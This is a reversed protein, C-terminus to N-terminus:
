AKREAVGYRPCAVDHRPSVSNRPIGVGCLPVGFNGLNASKTGKERFGVLFGIYDLLIM